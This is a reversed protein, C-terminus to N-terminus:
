LDNSPRVLEQAIQRRYSNMLRDLIIPLWRTTDQSIVRVDWSTPPNFMQNTNAFRGEQITDVWVTFHADFIYRMAQLPCVFDCIAFDCVSSDAAERMRQAQRMRGSESFDWDSYQTRLADANIWTVSYGQGQTELAPKLATALTTKGSGPLGMILVRM